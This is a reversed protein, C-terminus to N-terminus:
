DDDDGYAVQFQPDAPCMIPGGPYHSRELTRQVDAVNPAIANGAIVHFAFFITYLIILYVMGYAFRTRKKPYTYTKPM